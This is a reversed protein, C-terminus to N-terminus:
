SSGVAQRIRPDVVGYLLDVVANVLAFIAGIVLATGLIAPFDFSVAANIGYYGLGPWAFVTEVLFSGGLLWGVNLGSINIIPLWANRLTHRLTVRRAPLGKARAVRVYEQQAVELMSTRTMAAIMAVPQLALVVAPLILHDLNSLLAPWNGTLIADLPVFNTIPRPLMDNSTIIGSLPLWRLDVAVVLQLVVALWFSPIAVGLTSVVQVLADVPGNVYTAALIGLPVGVVLGILLAALVLEVTNPLYAALDASVSRQGQLSLGLDGHLANGLYSLYQAVLSQDLGYQHRLARVQAATAQGGLAYRIPDVPTLRTLAFLVVTLGLLSFVLRAIRRALFALM